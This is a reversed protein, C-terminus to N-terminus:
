LFFFLYSRVLFPHSYPLRCRPVRSVPSIHRSSPKTATQKLKQTAEPRWFSFSYGFPWSRLRSKTAASRM